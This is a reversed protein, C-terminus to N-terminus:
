GSSADKAEDNWQYEGLEPAPYAELGLAEHPTAPVSVVLQDALRGVRSAISALEAKVAPADDDGFLVATPVENAVAKEAARPLHMVAVLIAAAAATAASYYALRLPARRRRVLGGALHGRASAMAKAPVRVDLLDGLRREQNAIRRAVTLEEADLDVAEGDLYRAIREYRRETLKM